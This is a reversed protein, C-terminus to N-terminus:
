FRLCSNQKLNYIEGLYIQSIVLHNLIVVEDMNMLWDKVGLLKESFRKVLVKHFFILYTWYTSFMFFWYNIKKLLFAADNILLFIMNYFFKFNNKQRGKESYQDHHKKKRFILQWTREMNNSLFIFTSMTFWM